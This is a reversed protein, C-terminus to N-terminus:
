FLSYVFPAVYSLGTTVALLVGCLVLVIVLPLLFWKGTSAFHRFLRAITRLRRWLKRAPSV